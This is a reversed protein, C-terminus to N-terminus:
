DLWTFENRNFLGLAFLGLARQQDFGHEEVLAEVLAEARDLEAGDPTRSLAREMAEALAARLDQQDSLSAAFAEARVQSFEGNLTLLAQTPVNTPFREPCPMDPDPQDLVALLPERLSRKVHIYVSRRVSDEKSSRGWAAGPRSSTALV